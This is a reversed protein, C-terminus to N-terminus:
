LKDAVVRLPDFAGGLVLRDGAHLNKSLDPDTYTEAGRKLLLLTLPLGELIEGLSDSCIDDSIKFDVIFFDDELDLYNHVMPYSMERSIRVGTEYEPAIIRTAGLRELIRHHEKTMAKAWIDEIGQEKLQMTALVSTEFNNGIAIVAADYNSVNLEALTSELTADACVALTIDDAMQNVKDENTDIGLVDHGLQTLERAVTSGFIGLGIVIFQKSRSM